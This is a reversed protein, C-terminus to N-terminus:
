KVIEKVLQAENFKRLAESATGSMSFVNRITINVKKEPVPLDGRSAEKMYSGAWKDNQDFAEMWERYGPININESNAFLVVKFYCASM